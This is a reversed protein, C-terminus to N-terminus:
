RGGGPWDLKLSPEASLVVLVRASHNLVDTLNDLTALAQQDEDPFGSIMAAQAERERLAAEMALTQLMAASADSLETANLLDVIRRVLNDAGVPTINHLDDGIGWCREITVMPVGGFLLTHKDRTWLPANM